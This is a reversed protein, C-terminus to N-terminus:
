EFRSLAAEIREVKNQLAVRLAGTCHEISKITEAGKEELLEVILTTDEQRLSILMLEEDDQRKPLRCQCFQAALLLHPYVDRILEDEDIAYHKYLIQAKTDLEDSSEVGNMIAHAFERVDIERAGSLTGSGAKDKPM